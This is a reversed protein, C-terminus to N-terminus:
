GLTCYRHHLQGDLVSRRWSVGGSGFTALLCLAHEPPFSFGSAVCRSFCPLVPVAWAPTKHAIRKCATAGAFLSVLLCLRWLNRKSFVAAALITVRNRRNDINRWPEVHCCGPIPTAHSHFLCSSRNIWSFGERFFFRRGSRNKSDGNVYRINENMKVLLIRM